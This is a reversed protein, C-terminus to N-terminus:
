RRGTWGHPERRGGAAAPAKAHEAAAPSTFAHLKRSPSPIGAHATEFGSLALRIAHAKLQEDRRAVQHRAALLGDDGDDRKHAHQAHGDAHGGQNHDHAHVVTEGGIDPVLDQPCIGVDRYKGGVRRCKVGCAFGKRQLSGAPSPCEALLSRSAEEATDTGAEEGTVGTSASTCDMGPM